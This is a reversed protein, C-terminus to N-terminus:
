KWFHEDMRTSTTILQIDNYNILIERLLHGDDSFNEVIRDFNDLLLVVKRKEKNSQRNAM